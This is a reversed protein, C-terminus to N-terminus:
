VPVPVIVRVSDILPAFVSDNVTVSAFPTLAAAVALTTTLGCGKTTVTAQGAVDVGPTVNEHSTVAAPPVRGYVPVPLKAIVSVVLPMLVSDNLTVSAFVTVADPDALTDTWPVGNTTVTVHGEVAVTPFGKSQVTSAEPSVPGYLPVPEKLLVSDVLPTLVSVKLTVSALLTAAELEEVTVTVPCGRM